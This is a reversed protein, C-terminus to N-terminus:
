APAVFQEVNFNGLLTKIFIFLFISTLLLNIKRGQEFEDIDATFVRYINKLSIYSNCHAVFTEVM